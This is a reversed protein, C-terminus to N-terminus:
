IQRDLVQIGNIAKKRKIAKNRHCLFKIGRRLSIFGFYNTKFKSNIMHNSVLRGYSVIM